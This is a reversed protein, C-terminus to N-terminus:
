GLRRRLEKEIQRSIPIGTLMKKIEMKEHLGKDLTINVRMWDRKIPM